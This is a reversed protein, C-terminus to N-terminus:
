FVYQVVRNTASISHPIRKPLEPRDFLLRTTSNKDDYPALQDMSIDSFGKTLGPTQVAVSKKSDKRLTIKERQPYLRQMKEFNTFLEADKRPVLGMDGLRYHLNDRRKNYEKITLTKEQGNELQGIEENFKREELIHHIQEESPENTLIQHLQKFLNGSEVSDKTVSFNSASLHLPVLAKENNQRKTKLADTIVSVADRLNSMIRANENTAGVLENDLTRLRNEYSHNQHKKDSYNKENSFLAARLDQMRREIENMQCLREQNETIIEEQSRLMNALLQIVEASTAHQFAHEQEKKELIRVTKGMNVNGDEIQGSEVNVRSSNEEMDNLTQEIRANENITRKTTEAMQKNSARRFESAVANVRQVMDRKLRDRDQQDKKKIRELKNYHEQEKLKLTEQQNKRQALYHEQKNRFNELDNVQNRLENNEAEYREKLDHIETRLDILQKELMEKELDKAQSLGVIRDKLDQIEEEKQELQKKAYKLLEFDQELTKVQDFEQKQREKLEACRKEYQVYQRELIEIQMTYFKKDNESLPKEAVYDPVAPGKDKKKKGKGKDKKPGMKRKYKEVVIRISTANSVPSSKVRNSVSTQVGVSKSTVKKLAGLRVPPSLSREDHQPEFLNNSFFGIPSSTEKALDNLKPGVGLEIAQELAEVVNDIIQQTKENEHELKSLSEERQSVTRRLLENEEIAQYSQKEARENMEELQEILNRTDELASVKE